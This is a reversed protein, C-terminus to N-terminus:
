HTNTQRRTTLTLLSEGLDLQRWCAPQRLEAQRSNAFSQIKLMFKGHPLSPKKNVVRAINEIIEREREEDLNENGLFRNLLDSVQTKNKENTDTLVIEVSREDIIGSIISLVKAYRSLVVSENKEFIELEVCNMWMSYSASKDAALLSALFVLLGPFDRLNDILTKYIVDSFKMENPLYVNRSIAINDLRNLFSRDSILDKPLNELIEPWIWSPNKLELNEEFLFFIEELSITKKPSYFRMAFTLMRRLQSRAVGKTALGYELLQDAWENEKAGHSISYGIIPVGVRAVHSDFFKGCVFYKFDADTIGESRWRQEAVHWDALDGYCGARVEKSILQLDSSNEWFVILMGLPWPLNPLMAKFNRQWNEKLIRDILDALTKATPNEQFDRLARQPAWSPTEPLDDFAKRLEPTISVPSLIINLPTNNGGIKVNIDLGHIRSYTLLTLCPYIKFAHRADVGMKEYLTDSITVPCCNELARRMREDLASGALAGIGHMFLEIAESPNKPWIEDLIDNPWAQGKSSCRLILKWTAQIPDSFNLSLYRRLHEITRVPERACHDCLSEPLLSPGALLLDFAVSSLLRRYRPQDYALGDDLLALALRSGTRLLRDIEEGNENIDCCITVITDRYQESDNVSFCKSAAIQFVHLWHERNSVTRLREQVLAERGNMLHAAAMFEQLSRVEFSFRDDERQVILVLRETSAALLESTINCLEEGEFEDDILQGRILTELESKSLYAESNGRTEAEVHLLFGAKYHIASIQRAWHRMTQGVPGAKAQERQLVVAFYKDFLSWRDTPADGRQDILALLIAVQLPSVMLRTTTSSKAAEKLRSIVRERQIHDTIRAVALKEAYTLALEPALSTMEFKSYYNPDLDDNYGQPRTTVIMLVDASTAEDWFENIARLVSNRNASSPVEDLGDLIIISPFNSIWHRLDEIEISANAIDSINKVLYHLLSGAADRESDASLWDAYNPLDVRLPFRRPVDVGLGAKMAKSLTSEIVRNIEVTYKGERESRLINARFIQALFQSLTSKGQGPGGLLLIREPRGVEHNQQAKVSAGDLCDRSRDLLTSLLLNESLNEYEPRDHLRYPLDIFVDEIMIQADGSHGAQQLRMPQHARLERTLYRYMADRVAKSKRHMNELIEAIVDSSSLWAAYSRRLENADMLMTALQDLHWVRYDKFGIKKKYKAFVEDIKAIGGKGRKSAPFPSLRANSVLIYFDPKRLDSRSSVYKEFEANLQAVLWDADEQPTGSVQLFKAQMVTYGSWNEAGSPYDLTGEYTAERAGDPGDGFILVGKGLVHLAMAQAFREFSRTSFTRFDFDM